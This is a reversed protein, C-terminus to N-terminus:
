YEILYYITKTKAGDLNIWGKEASLVRDTKKGSHDLVTIKPQTKRNFKMSLKVPELLVPANGRVLLETRDDSFKMGTNQARAITTVLIRNTNAIGKEKELSTVLVVAFENDTKLTLEGLQLPERNSFGVFGKTGATNITFYGKGKESWNLQGTTSSMVSDKWLSEFNKLFETKNEDTYSLAVKGAAMLQLPFTGEMVKRDFDQKVTENLPTAGKLVSALDVKRHIVTEGEKVDGRYIMRALAPYLAMQTPSTANYIGGGRGSHIAPQYRPIDTAFVYSADWGQLGMGYTAIIPSSEATWENPILSMWESFAFPRNSLQQLGSSFLGSGIKSVMPTNDFKGPALSHGNGGGFYNHRDIMGVEADAHLNLLHALGTGAQWCSGVLPGKYGTERIAKEFKKYFKMQEDYLFNAKDLIHQKVPRKEKLAQGYEWSFLGHNPQPYVNEAAISEVSLLGENNWAKKLQEDTGYKAKLWQSFKRSLMAKYTPTQELTKEIASWFINDENQFEIFSLAPDSAYKLGTLPNVHNLMNVTLEINLAQLDEAFNVLASTTGNLHSWPFKTAALESYAMIRNSDAKMVKHGYIHSWGYYIGKNRLENCLFDFNKWRDGSIVTSHIGDTADWTFKHFRVGNFGFRSLFNGWKVAEEPKMFPQNSCVNTGWFKIPTGDEFELQDDKMLVFGHKGAPKDLWDAMDTIADTPQNEPSFVFWDKLDQAVATMALWVFITILLLHKQNM